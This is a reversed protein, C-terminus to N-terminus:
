FTDSFAANGGGQYTSIAGCNAPIAVTAAAQSTSFVIEFTTTTLQTQSVITGASTTAPIPGNIVIPVNSTFTVTITSVTATLTAAARQVSQGRGLKRRNTRHVKATPYSAM